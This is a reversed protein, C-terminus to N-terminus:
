PTETKKQDEEAGAGDSEALADPVFAVGLVGQALTRLHLLQDPGQAAVLADADADKMGGGVLGLAVLDRVETSNPSTSRGFFGDWIEFIGRHQDEFREIEENRLLLIQRSSGLKEVVGGRPPSVAIGM